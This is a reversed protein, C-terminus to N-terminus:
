KGKLTYCGFNNHLKDSARAKTHYHLDHVRCFVDADTHARQSQAAWIFVSLRIIANPKLQHMYIDSVKAIM